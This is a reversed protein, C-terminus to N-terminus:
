MRVYLPYTTITHLSICSQVIATIVYLAQVYLIGKADSIITWDVSTEKGFVSYEVFRGQRAIMKLRSSLLPFLPHIYVYMYGASGKPLSPPLSGSEGGSGDLHFGTTDVSNM